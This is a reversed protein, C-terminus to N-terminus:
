GSPVLLRHLQLAQDRSLLTIQIGRGSFPRLVQPAQWLKGAVSFGVADRADYAHRIAATVASVDAAPFAIVFGYTAPGKPETPPPRYTAVSSVAASTITVPSGAPRYCAVGASPAPPASPPAAPTATSGRVVQRVHVTSARPVLALGFLSVSAVPCRGAVTPPQSRMVQLIIPSGLQRAPPLSAPASDPGLPAIHSCAAVALVTGVATLASALVPLPRPIPM